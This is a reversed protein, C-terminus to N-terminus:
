GMAVAPQSKPLNQFDVNEFDTSCYTPYLQVDHDKKSRPMYKLAFSSLRDSKKSPSVNNLESLALLLQVSKAKGNQLKFESFTPHLCDPSSTTLLCSDCNESFFHETLRELLEAKQPLNHTQRM